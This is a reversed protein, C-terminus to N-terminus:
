LRFFDYFRYVSLLLFSFIVVGFEMYLSSVIQPRQAFLKGLESETVIESKNIKEKDSLQLIIM